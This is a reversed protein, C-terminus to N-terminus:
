EKPNVWHTKRWVDPDQFEPRGAILFAQRIARADDAFGSDGLRDVNGYALGAEILRVGAPVGDIYLQILKRGSTDSDKAVSVELEGAESVHKRLHETARSAWPEQDGHWLGPRAPEPADIGVLRCLEGGWEITNGDVVTIASADVTTRSESDSLAFPLYFLTAALPLAFVLVTFWSVVKSKSM